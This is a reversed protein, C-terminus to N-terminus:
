IGMRQQEKLVKIKRRRANIFWNSLQQQNLGTTMMLHNKEFSNPYPHNLHENLWKLLVYTTEKPLNNRTKRKEVTAKPSTSNSNGVSSSGESVSSSTSRPQDVASSQYHYNTDPATVPAPVPPTTHYSSLSGAQYSSLPGAQYPPFYPRNFSVSPLSPPLTFPTSMSTNLLDRIPPLSIKNDM